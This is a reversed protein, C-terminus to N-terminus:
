PQRELATIALQGGGADVATFRVQDGVKLGALLAPDRLGFTMTMPPMGLNRIEGHRLTLRANAPDIRRVEGQTWAAAAPASAPVAPDQALAPVPASLALVAILTLSRNMTTELM